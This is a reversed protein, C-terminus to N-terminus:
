PLESTKLYTRTKPSRFLIEEWSDLNQSQKRHRIDYLNAIEIRVTVIVHSLKQLTALKDSESRLSKGSLKSLSESYRRSATWKFAYNPFMTDIELLVAVRFKTVG